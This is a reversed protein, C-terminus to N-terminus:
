RLVPRPASSSRRVSVSPANGRATRRQLHLKTSRHSRNKDAAEDYAHEVGQIGEDEEPQAAHWRRQTNWAIAPPSM